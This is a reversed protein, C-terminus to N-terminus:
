TTKLITKPQVKNRTTPLLQIKRLTLSPFNLEVDYIKIYQKEDVNYASMNNSYDYFTDPFLGEKSTEDIKDNHIDVFNPLLDFSTILTDKIM